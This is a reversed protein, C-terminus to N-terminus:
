AFRANAKEVVGLPEDHFGPIKRVNELGDTEVSEIWAELKSSIYAPVKSLDKDARKTILVTTIAM